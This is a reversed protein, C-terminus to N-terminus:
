AKSMSVQSSPAVSDSDGPIVFLLVVAVLELAAAIILLVWGAYPGYSLGDISGSFKGTGNNDTVFSAYLAVSIIAFVVGVLGIIVCLIRSESIQAPIAGVRLPSKTTVVLVAFLVYALIALIGFAEAAKIKGDKPMDEEQGSVHCKGDINCQETISDAKIQYWPSALAAITIIVVVISFAALQARPLANMGAV